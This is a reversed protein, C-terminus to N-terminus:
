ACNANEDDYGLHGKSVGLWFIIHKDTPCKIEFTFSGAVHHVDLLRNQCIYCRIERFDESFGSVNDKIADEDWFIINSGVQKLVIVNKTHQCRYRIWVVGNSSALDFIRGYCRKNNGNLESGGYIPCGARLPCMVRIMTPKKAIMIEDRTELFNVEKKFLVM